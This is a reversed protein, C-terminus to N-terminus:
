PGNHRHTNADLSAENLAVNMLSQGVVRGFFKLGVRIGRIILEEAAVSIEM